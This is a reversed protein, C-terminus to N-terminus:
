NKIDYLITRTNSLFTQNFLGVTIIGNTCIISSHYMKIFSLARECQARDFVKIIHFYYFSRTLQYNSRCAHFSNMLIIIAARVTGRSSSCSGRFSLHALIGLSVSDISAVLTEFM